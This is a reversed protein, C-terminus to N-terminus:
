ELSDLMTLSFQMIHMKGIKATQMILPRETLDLLTKYEVKFSKKFKGRDAPDMFRVLREIDHTTMWLDFVEPDDTLCQIFQQRTILGTKHTDKEEILERLSLGASSLQGILNLLAFTFRRFYEESFYTFIQQQEDKTLPDKYKPPKYTKKSLNLDIHQVDIQKSIELTSYKYLNSITIM